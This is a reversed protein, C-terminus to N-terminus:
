GGGGGGMRRSPRFSSGSSSQGTLPNFDNQRYTFKPKPKSSDSSSPKPQQDPPKYKSRYGKGQQHNEWDKIKKAREEEEREKQKEAYLAAERDLKEQMKQRSREMAAMKAMNRDPNKHHEAYEQEEKRRTLWQDFYVQLKSKLFLLLIIGLLVFWGYQQLFRIAIGYYELIINPTQNELVHPHNTDEEVEIEVGDDADDM